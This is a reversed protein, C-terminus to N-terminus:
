RRQGPGVHDRQPPQLAPRDHQRAHPADPEAMKRRRRRLPVVASRGLGAHWARRLSRAGAEVASLPRPPHLQRGHGQGAGNRHPDARRARRGRLRRPGHPAAHRPAAPARREAQLARPGCVGHPPHRLAGERREQRLSHHAHRQLHLSQPHAPSWLAPSAITTSAIETEADWAALSKELIRSPKAPPM